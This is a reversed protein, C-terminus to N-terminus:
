RGRLRRVRRGRGRRRGGFDLELEPARDLVGVLDLFEVGVQVVIRVAGELRDRQGADGCQLVARGVRGAVQGGAGDVLRDEGLVRRLHGFVLEAQALRLAAVHVAAEGAEAEVDLRGTLEVLFGAGHNGAPLGGAAIRLGTIEVGQLVLRQLGLDEGGADGGAFISGVVLRAGRAAAAPAAATAATA